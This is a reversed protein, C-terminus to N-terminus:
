RETGGQAPSPGGDRRDRTGLFLRNEGDVVPPSALPAETKFMWLSKGDDRSRARLTGDAEGVYLRSGGPAVPATAEAGDEARWLVRGTELDLAVVGGGAVFVR